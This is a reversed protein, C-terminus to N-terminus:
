RPALVRITPGNTTDHESTFETVLTHKEFLETYAAARQPYREPADLFRGYDDSSAILYDYGGTPHKALGHYGLPTVEFRTEDLPPTYHERAIRSGEPLNTEIWVKALWRTDPLTVEAAHRWAAVAQVSAGALVLLLLAALAPTRNRRLENARAVAAGAAIAAFPLLALANREFRVPYSGVFLLYAAPFAALVALTRPASAALAACGALALIVALPGIGRCLAVLHFAYSTSGGEYGPHGTAYHRGERRVDDLFSRADFLAFPTTALFTAVLVGLFLAFEACFLTRWGRAAVHAALLPAFCWVGTYKTGAALGVCLGGLAYDLPRATGRLVRAAPVLSLVIWLVMPEDVVAIFGYEAHLSSTALLLAAAAGALPGFLTRAVHFTAAVTAVSITVTLLRAARYITPVSMDAVADYHGLAAGTLYQLGQVVAQVYIMLSPYAFFHPNPDGTSLMQLAADLISPEDPHVALPFGFPVGRVRLVLAVLLVAALAWRAARDAAPPRPERKV